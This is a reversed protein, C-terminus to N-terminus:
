PAVEWRPSSEAGRVMIRLPLVSGSVTGAPFRFRIEDTNGATSPTVYEGAGPPTTTIRTLKTNGLFVLLENASLAHPEFGQMKLTVIGAAEIRSAIMPVIALVSENSYADFDRQSGDPLTRRVATKVIAGYIGPILVQAGATPQVTVTMESGNTTLNWATDVEVPAIFDRHNLLLATSDGKLDAGILSLTQGVGVEAPSLIISRPTTEGPVTFTVESQTKELRPQGRLLTHVGVM